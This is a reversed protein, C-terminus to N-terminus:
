NHFKEWVRKAVGKAKETIEQEDLDPLIKNKMVIQGNIITTDVEADLIGFL